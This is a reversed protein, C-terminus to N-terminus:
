TLITDISSIWEVWCKYCNKGKPMNKRIINEIKKWEQTEREVGGLTGEDYAEELKLEIRGVDEETGGCKCCTGTYYVDDYQSCEAKYIKRGIRIELSLDSM